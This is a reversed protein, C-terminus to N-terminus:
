KKLCLRFHSKLHLFTACTVFGFGRCLKKESTGCIHKTKSPCVWSDQYQGRKRELNPIKSPVVRLVIENSCGNTCGMPLISTRQFTKSIIELNKAERDAIQQVWSYLFRVVRTALTCPCGILSQANLGLLNIRLPVLSLAIPAVYFLCSAIQSRKTNTGPGRRNTGKTM